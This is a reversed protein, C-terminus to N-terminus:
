RYFYKVNGLHPYYRSFINANTSPTWGLFLTSIGGWRFFDANIFDRVCRRDAALKRKVILHCSQFTTM